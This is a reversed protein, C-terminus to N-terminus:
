YRDGTRQYNGSEIVGDFYEPHQHVYVYAELEYAPADTPYVMVEVLQRMYTYPNNEIRDLWRWMTEPIEFVEGYAKGEDEIRLGVGGGIAYLNAPQLTAEGVFTAGEKTLDLQFGRKLIGYVFLKNCAQM